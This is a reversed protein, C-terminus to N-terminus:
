LENALVLSSGWGMVLPGPFAFQGHEWFPPYDSFKPPCCFQYVPIYTCIFTYLYVSTYTYKYIHM